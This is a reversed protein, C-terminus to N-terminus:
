EANKRPVLAPDCYPAGPDPRFFSVYSPAGWGSTRSKAFVAVDLRNTLSEIQFEVVATSDGTRAINARGTDGHVIRFEFEDGGAARLAFKRVSKGSRIIFSSAFPTAYACEPVTAEAGSVVVQVSALPAISDLSRESALKVLREMDLGDPPMCTPHAAPSLYAEEGDVGRLSKRLIEQVTPALMGSAVIKRKVDPRLSRSIELAAELYRRDSWSHGQTVIWYPTVASFCDGFAGDPPYDANAPFVWIQNSLYFRAMGGLRAAETTVLARPLSRWFDPEVYARSCNGFVPYPFFMNPFDLDMGLRRGEADLRVETLSPFNEVAIRSHNGDRNFYLDGANGGAGESALKLLANFCGNDFDWALNQAGLVVPKGTVGTADVVALPGSYVPRSSMLRAYEVLEEFRREGSLRALDTDAVIADADRFGLDIAKELQDLAATKDLRYALACALNYAWTPDDPLLETGRRCTSEMTAIDGSRMAAVFEGRLRTHDAQRSPYDWISLVAFLVSAPFASM